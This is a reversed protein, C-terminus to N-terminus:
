LRLCGAGLDDAKGIRAEVRGVGDLLRRFEADDGAPLTKCSEQERQGFHVPQPQFCCLAQRQGFAEVPIAVVFGAGEGLTEEVARATHGVHHLRAGIGGDRLIQLRDLFRAGVLRFGHGLFHM